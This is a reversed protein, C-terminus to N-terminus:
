INGKSSTVFGGYKYALRKRYGEKKKQVNEWNPGYIEQLKELAEPNENLFQSVREKEQMIDKPEAIYKNIPHSIVRSALDWLVLSPILSAQGGIASGAVWGPIEGAARYPDGPKDPSIIGPANFLTPVVFPGGFQKLRNKAGPGRYKFQEYIGSKLTPIMTRPNLLNVATRGISTAQEPRFEHLGGSLPTRVPTAIERYIDQPLFGGATGVTKESLIKMAPSDPTLEKGTISQYQQKVRDSAKSVDIGAEKFTKATNTVPDWLPHNFPKGVKVREYRPTTIVQAKLLNKIGIGFRRAGVGIVSPVTHSLFSSVSAKKLLYRKLEDM